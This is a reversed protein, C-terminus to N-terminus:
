SCAEPVASESACKYIGNQYCCDADVNEARAQITAMSCTQTDVSDIGQHGPKPRRAHIGMSQLVRRSEGDDMADKALEDTDDKAQRRHGGGKPRKGGTDIVEATTETCGLPYNTCQIKALEFPAIAGRLESETPAVGCTEGRPGGTAGHGPDGVWDALWEPDRPAGNADGNQLRTWYPVGNTCSLDNPHSSCGGCNPHELNSPRQNSVMDWRVKVLSGDFGCVTGRAIMPDPADTSATHCFGMCSGDIAEGVHAHCLAPVSSRWTHEVQDGIRLGSQLEAQEQCNLSRGSRDAVCAGHYLAAVQGATLAIDFLMFGALDGWHQSVSCGEGCTNGVWYITETAQFFVSGVEVGDVFYTTTGRDGSITLRHWGDSLSSMKFNTPVFGRDSNDYAGLTDEDQNSLLAPHDEVLGRVLTHWGTWPSPDHGQNDCNTCEFPTQIFCDVTWTEDIDVGAPDNLKLANGWGFTYGQLGFPPPKFDGGSRSPQISGVVDCPTSGQNGTAVCSSGSASQVTM